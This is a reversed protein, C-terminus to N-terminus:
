STPSRVDVVHFTKLTKNFAIAARYEQKGNAKCDEDDDNFTMTMVQLGIMRRIMMTTTM